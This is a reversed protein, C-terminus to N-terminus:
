SKLLKLFLLLADSLQGKLSFKERSFSTKKRPLLLKEKRKEDWQRQACLSRVNFSDKRAIVASHNLSVHFKQKQCDITHICVCKEHRVLRQCAKGHRVLRLRSIFRTKNSMLLITRICRSFFKFNLRPLDLSSTSSSAASMWYSSIARTTSEDKIVLKISFELSFWKLPQNSPLRNRNIPNITM